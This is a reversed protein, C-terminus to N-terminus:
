GLLPKHYEMRVNVHLDTQLALRTRDNAMRLHGTIIDTYFPDLSSTFSM